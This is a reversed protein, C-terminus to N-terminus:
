TAEAVRAFLPPGGGSFSTAGPQTRLLLNCGVQFAGSASHAASYREAEQMMERLQTVTPFKAAYCQAGSIRADVLKEPDDSSSLMILPVSDLARQCRIWRLVDLGSMGAMKVDIFCALPPPAGRLVELLADLLDEGCAFMKCPYDLGPQQLLEGFVRRHDEEDEVCYVIPEGATRGHTAVPASTPAPNKTSRFM